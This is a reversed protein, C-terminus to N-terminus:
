ANDRALVIAGNDDWDAFDTDFGNSELAKKAYKVAVVRSREFKLLSSILKGSSDRAVLGTSDHHDVVDLLVERKVDLKVFKKPVM